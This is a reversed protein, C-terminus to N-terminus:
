VPLRFHLSFVLVLSLINVHEAAERFRLGVTHTFVSASVETQGSWCWWWWWTLRRAGVVSILLLGVLWGVGKAHLNYVYLITWQLLSISANLEVLTM